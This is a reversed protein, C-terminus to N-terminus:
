EGTRVMGEYNIYQEIVYEPSLGLINALTYLSTQKLNAKDIIEDNSLVSFVNDDAIIEGDSFVVARDTNEIALHMDHTIFIITKGYESNLKNIFNIIDMYHRYDQGATPEDLIIVEPELAIIAAVTIRKKQGYSVSDVPWNRFRYLECTRMAASSLEEVRDEPLKRLNLALEVEDKIIDKIIMQNPNQMVYGIREGIEKITLSLYDQGDIYIAGKNPRGIGSILRAMTSKGAGNKGIVAIREGKRVSFSIGKLVDESNTTQGYSYSVEQVDIITEGFRREQKEIKKEFFSLLKQKDTESLEIKSIDELYGIGSLDCGAYRLATIYLPERIGYDKLLNSKLLESPSTDAVISGQDMLIIRDVPRFLVDELRHEIIITTRGGEKHIKDILDIAVTGTEPDLSALPEDFILINMKEEIVGALAVKQKQGGSLNFPLADLFENMEVIKSRSLVKPIMEQRPINNNEMAFAIDEGASLGVFQADSDQLVTGVDRSLEFISLGGTDVGNIECSGTVSGTYSFPILGNICNVLTSKGSGSAGLILVKEGEYITLNINVLTPKQQAKYQFSYNKFQVVPKKM